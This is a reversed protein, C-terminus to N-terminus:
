SPNLNIEKTGRVSSLRPPMGFPLHLLLTFSKQSQYYTTLPFADSVWWQHAKKRHLYTSADVHPQLPTQMYKIVHQRLTSVLVSRITKGKKVIVPSLFNQTITPQTTKRIPFWFSKSMQTPNQRHLFRLQVSHFMTKVIQCFLFVLLLYHWLPAYNSVLHFNMYRFSTNYLERNM